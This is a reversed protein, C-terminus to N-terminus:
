VKDENEKSKCRMKSMLSGHVLVMNWTSLGIEVPIYHSDAYSFLFDSPIRSISHIGDFMFFATHNNWSM